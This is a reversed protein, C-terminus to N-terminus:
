QKKLWDGAKDIAKVEPLMVHRFHYNSPLSDVTNKSVQCQQEIIEGYHRLGYANISDCAQNYVKLLQEIQQQRAGSGTLERNFALVGLWLGDAATDMLVHAQLNRAQTAQPEPLFLADMIGNELMSLRVSVDNVQIRFVRDNQLGAGAVVEDALMATASYRTMALMKDDLQKAQRIRATRSTLLQWSLQTATVYHLRMGQQKLREARVLDTMMGEVRRNAIATDCDMQAQYRCLQVDVGERGFMGLTEAVYLPLCDLTPMVAVKLAASDLLVDDSKVHTEEKGDCSVILIAIALLMLLKRM